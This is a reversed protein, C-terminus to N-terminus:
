LSAAHSGSRETAHRSLYGLQRCRPCSTVPPLEEDRSTARREDIFGCRLCTFRWSGFDEPPM